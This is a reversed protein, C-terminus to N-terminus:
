PTPSEPVSTKEKYGELSSKIAVLSKQLSSVSRGVAVNRVISGKFGTLGAQESGMVKILYFGRQNAQNNSDPICFTLDLATEFYHSSYLQKEATAWVPGADTRDSITVLHVLRLTPKLGFKVKSWYFTDEANAPKAEPYGLLYRFFDPLPDPFALYYSLLYAFQKSVETPNRKDNYIGLASNGDRQYALLFQLAEKQVLRNAQEDVDPASWDIAEQFHGMLEGPLQIQCNGPKCRRLDVIEDHDFSFGEFDLSSPPSSVVGLGVYSSITRRRNFDRVAELYNEPVADVHVAGFLFIEGPSRSPLAKSVASGNRILTIQDASLGINRDFFRLLQPNTQSRCLPGACFLVGACLITRRLRRILWRSNCAMDWFKWHLAIEM